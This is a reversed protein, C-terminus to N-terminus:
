WLNRANSVVSALRGLFGAAASAPVASLAYTRLGPVGTARVRYTNCANGVCLRRRSQKASRRRQGACGRGPRQGM